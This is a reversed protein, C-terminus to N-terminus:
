PCSFVVVARTGNRSKLTATGGLQQALSNVLLLGLTDGQTTEVGPPLGPGDDEVLLAAEVPGTRRLAVTLRGPSEATFAYKFANTVLENVVLGLPIAREITLRLDDVAFDIEIRSDPQRYTDAIQEVLTPIYHAMNVANLDSSRYLQEHVLAMSLIRDRMRPLSDSCQAGQERESQLSLLSLIIQLNNKVRHHIERLMVEKEALSRGLAEQIRRTETMDINIGLVGSVREDDLIPGLRTQVLRRRGDPLTVEDHATYTEGALARRNSAEWADLTETPVGGARFPQGRLDGWNKKCSDSQFIVRGQLDRAWAEVPLNKLLTGFLADQRRRQSDVQAAANLSRRALFALLLVLAIGAAGFGGNLTAKLRWGALVQSVDESVVLVLDDPFSLQHFTVMREVGDLSNVVRFDASPLGSAFFQETTPLGKLSRGEQGELYPVRLRIVFDRGLLVVSGNRGSIASSLPSSFFDTRVGLAVVGLFEGGSGIVPRSLAMLKGGILSNFPESLYMFSRAVGVHANFFSHGAFVAGLSSPVSTTRLTGTTDIVGITEIFPFADKVELCMELLKPSDLPLSAATRAIKLLQDDVFRLTASFQADATRALAHRYERAEQLTRAYDHRIGFVTIGALILAAGVAVIWISRSAAADLLPPPPDNTM